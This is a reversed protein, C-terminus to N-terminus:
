EGLEREQGKEQQGDGAGNDTGNDAGSGSGEMEADSPLPPSKLGINGEEGSIREPNTFVPAPELGDNSSCAIVKSKKLPIKFGEDDPHSRKRVVKEGEGKEEEFKNTSKERLADTPQGSHTPDAKNKERSKELKVTYEHFDSQLRPLQSPLCPLPESRFYPHDLAEAATM